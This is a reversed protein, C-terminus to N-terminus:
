RSQGCSISVVFLSAKSSLAWLCFCPFTTSELDWPGCFLLSFILFFCHILIERDVVKCATRNPLAPVMVSRWKVFPLLLESAFGGAGMQTSHHFQAFDTNVVWHLQGKFVVPKFQEPRSICPNKEIFINSFIKQLNTVIQFLM